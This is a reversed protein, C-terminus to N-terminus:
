KETSPKPAPAPETPAPAPETPAPTPAEPAPAPETPAPTPAEPTPTIPRSPKNWRNEEHGVVKRSPQQTPQQKKAM